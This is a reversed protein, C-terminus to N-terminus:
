GQPLGQTIAVAVPLLHPCLNNSDACYMVQWFNTYEINDTLYGETYTKQNKGVLKWQQLTHSVKDPIITVELILEARVMSTMWCPRCDGTSLFFGQQALHHDPCVNRQIGSTGHHKSFTSCIQGSAHCDSLNTISCVIVFMIKVAKNHWLHCHLPYICSSYYHSLLYVCLLTPNFHHYHSQSPFLPISFPLTPNFLSSHSLTQITPYLIPETPIHRELRMM